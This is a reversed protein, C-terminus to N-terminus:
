RIAANPDFTRSFDAIFDAYRNELIAQRIKRMLEAFFYLSHHTALCPALLEGASFLHRIYARSYNRCTYCNCNPDIPRSDEAYYRAKLSMKGQPLRAYALSYHIAIPQRGPHLLERLLTADGAVIEQCTKLSSVFMFAGKSFRFRKSFHNDTDASSGIDRSEVAIPHDIPEALAVADHRM